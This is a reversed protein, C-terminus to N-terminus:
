RAPRPEARGARMFAEINAPPTEQPLDCGTSLIFNPVDRMDALLAAVAREVGAPAARLMVATPSINGMVLIDPPLTRAVRVLDVGTEPADLSLGVAGSAAMRDILHMTNGCTHYLVAVDSYKFGAVIDKVYSASFEGFQRPGLMVASPELVAIVDAGASILLRGYEQITEAAFDCLAHLRRPDEISAVAADDAGLLLAALTYPGILYAGKLMDGPLGVSMMKVTEIYGLVRGDFAVNVAKLADLDEFRFADRVVTASDDKPFVTYRGLANAEVSLDMLPFVLDPAFRDALAKVARFHVGFNQQALKISGGILDVGPFGMMPAVLRRGREHARVAREQLISRIM